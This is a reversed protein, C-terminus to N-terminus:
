TLSRSSSVGFLRSGYSIIGSISLMALEEFHFAAAVQVGWSIALPPSQLDLPSSFTGVLTAHSAM